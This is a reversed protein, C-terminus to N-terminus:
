LGTSGVVGEYNLCDVVERYEGKYFYSNNDRNTWDTVATVLEERVIREVSHERALLWWATDSGGYAAGLLPSHCVQLGPYMNSFYGLDNNATNSRWESKTIEVATPFLATPVLLTKPTHMGPTGDQAKQSQLALFAAKLSTETLPGTILNSSAVGLVSTHTASILPQGDFTQSASTAGTFSNTYVNFAQQDRTTQATRAMDRVMNMVVDWENSDQQFTRPVVVGKDWNIVQAIKLGAVRPNGQPVDQEESRPEFAGPGGYVERQKFENDTTKQRFVAEQTADAVDPTDKISYLPYLVEDLLTRVVNPSSFSNMSM